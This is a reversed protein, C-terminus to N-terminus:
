MEGRVNLMNREKLLSNQDDYQSIGIQKKGLM